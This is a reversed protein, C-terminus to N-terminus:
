GGRVQGSMGGDDDWITDSALISGFRRGDVGPVVVADASGARRETKCEETVKILVRLKQGEGAGILRRRPKHAQSWWPEGLAPCRSRFSEARPQLRYGAVAPLSLVFGSYDTSDASIADKLNATFVGVKSDSSTQGTQPKALRSVM